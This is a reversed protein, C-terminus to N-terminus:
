LRNGSMRRVLGCGVFKALALCFEGLQQHFPTYGLINGVNLVHQIPLQELSPIHGRYRSSPSPPSSPNSRNFTTDNNLPGSFNCYHGIIIRKLLNTPLPMLQLFPLQSPTSTTWFMISWAWLLQVYGVVLRPNLIDI